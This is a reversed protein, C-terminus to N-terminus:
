WTSCWCMWRRAAHPPRRHPGPQAGPPRRRSGGTGPQAHAGAHHQLQAGARMAPDARASCWGRWGKASGIQLGAGGAFDVGMDLSSTCVVAKIRGQPGGGGLRAGPAGRLSGHHSPVITGAWDPRAGAAGPVPARGPSRTNTFVGPRGTIWRHVAGGAAAAVPGHARGPLVTWARAADGAGGASQRHPGAGVRCPNPAEATCAPCPLCWRPWAEELNGLTASM